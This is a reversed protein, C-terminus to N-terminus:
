KNKQLSDLKNLIKKNKRHQLFMGLGTLGVGAGALATNRQSKNNIGQLNDVIFSDLDSLKELEDKFADQAIKELDIM